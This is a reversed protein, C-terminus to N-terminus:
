SVELIQLNALFNYTMNLQGTVYIGVTGSASGTGIGLVANTGSPVTGTASGRFAYVPAGIYTAQGNAGSAISIAGSIHWVGGVPGTNVARAVVTADVQSISNATLTHVRSMVQFATADTTNKQWQESKVSPGVTGTAGSGQNWIVSGNVTPNLVVSGTPGAAGTAGQSGAAGASGTPGTVGQPGTAGQAGRAFSQSM